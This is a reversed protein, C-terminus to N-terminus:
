PKHIFYFLVVNIQQAKQCRFYIEGNKDNINGELFVNSGQFSYYKNKKERCFDLYGCSNVPCKTKHFKTDLM